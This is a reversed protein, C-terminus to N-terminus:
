EIVIKRNTEGYPTEIYLIYSGSKIQSAELILVQLSIANESSIVRGQMDVLQYATIETGNVQIYVKDNSPVPFVVLNQQLQEELGLACPESLYTMNSFNVHCVYEISDVYPNRNGQQSFFYENRAIEYNDPLDTFHWTKLTEQSQNTPIQWNNGSIGNYATAMYFISRAANGKQAARPEYVMQNVANYGVSGELYTFVVSGTIEDLPLNSRPTNAQQLNTPYLNHQDSYEPKEPSDAPFTPMWSHSYTHERSYGQATWDFPDNFVKREGSYACVVYSQGDTTDRIEFQTM